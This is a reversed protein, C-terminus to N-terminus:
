LVFNRTYNKKLKIMVHTGTVDNFIASATLIGGCTLTIEPKLYATTYPFHPNM